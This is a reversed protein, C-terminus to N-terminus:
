GLGLFKALVASVALTTESDLHGIRQGIRSRPVTVAKDVMVQSRARLGTSQGAEVAIRFLPWDHLESSLPLVTVSPLAEFADDQIIVAPRPTGYDGALAITVLDGRTIEM